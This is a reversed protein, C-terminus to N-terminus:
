AQAPAEDPGDEERDSARNELRQDPPLHRRIVSVALQMARFTAEDGHVRANARHQLLVRICDTPTQLTPM